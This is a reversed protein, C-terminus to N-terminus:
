NETPVKDGSDIVILDLPAKRPELKLGLQQISSFISPAPGGEPAPRAEGGPPPGMMRMMGGRMAAMEEMSIELTVDYFGALGTMDIVPRDVLNSLMDVFGSMSMRKAEMRGPRMMMTPRDGGAGGEEAKQLKPGNKGVVLAYVPLDKKERHFKLKFREVLLSQLMLPVQEKPTNAPYTATINFRETDLWSPGSIQYSKVEFAKPLVIKLNVNTYNIRGPDGGLSMRMRGDSPPPAPKISAVEFAPQAFAAASM